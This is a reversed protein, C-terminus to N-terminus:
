LCFLNRRELARVRLATLTTLHHRRCLQLRLPEECEPHVEMPDEEENSSLSTAVDNVGGVAQAAVGFSSTYQQGDGLWDFRWVDSNEIPLESTSVARFGLQVEM